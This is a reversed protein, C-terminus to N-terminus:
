AAFARTFRQAVERLRELPENAFVLRLYRATDAEGWNEMSTAAVGQKLLAASAQAGSL